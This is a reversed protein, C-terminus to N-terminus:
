SYWVVLPHFVISNKGHFNQVSLDHHSTYDINEYKRVGSKAGDVGASHAPTGLDM